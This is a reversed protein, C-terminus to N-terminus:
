VCKGRWRLNKIKLFYFCPTSRGGKRRERGREEKEKEAKGKKSRRGEGGDSCSTARVGLLGASSDSGAGRRKRGLFVFLGQRYAFKDAGEETQLGAV